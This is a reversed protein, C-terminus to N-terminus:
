SVESVVRAPATEAALASQVAPRAFLRENHAQWRPYASIDMELRKAWRLFVALYPDLVSYGSAMAWPGQLRTEIERFAAELRVPGADSLAKKGEDDDLFREGRWIQAITVHVNSALWAMMEYAKALALADDLPLLNKGPFRNAIYSLIAVTETVVEGDVTLVPVRGRPSIARFWASHQEGDSLLVRHATFPAEAEYLSVLSAFACSGPAYYLQM